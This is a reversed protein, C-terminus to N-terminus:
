TKLYSERAFNYICNLHSKFVKYKYSKDIQHGFNNGWNLHSSCVKYKCLNDIQYRQKHIYCVDKIQHTWFQTASLRWFCRSSKQSFEMKVNSLDFRLSFKIRERGCKATVKELFVTIKLM